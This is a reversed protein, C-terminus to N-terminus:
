VSLVVIFEMVGDDFEERVVVEVGVSVGGDM